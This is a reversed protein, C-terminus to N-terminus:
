PALKTEKLFLVLLLWLLLVMHQATTSNDSSKKKKKLKGAVYCVGHILSQALNILLFVLFYKSSLGDPRYPGNPFLCSASVSPSAERRTRTWTPFRFSFFFFSIVLCLLLSFGSLYLTFVLSINARFRRMSKPPSRNHQRMSSVMRGDPEDISYYYILSIFFSPSFFFIFFFHGLNEGPRKTKYRRTYLRDESDSMIMWKSAFSKRAWM